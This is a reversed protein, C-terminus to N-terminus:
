ALNLRAKYVAVALGWHSGAFILESGGYDSLSILVGIWYGETVVPIDRERPVSGAVSGVRGM